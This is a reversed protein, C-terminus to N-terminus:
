SYGFWFLLTIIIMSICLIIGVTNDDASNAQSEMLHLFYTGNADQLSYIVHDDTVQIIIQDGPEIKNQFSDIDFDNLSDSAITYCTGDLVINVQKQTRFGASTFYRDTITECYDFNGEVM